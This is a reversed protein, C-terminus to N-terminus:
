RPLGLYPKLNLACFLVPMECTGLGGPVSILKEKMIGIAEKANGGVSSRTLDTLSSQTM